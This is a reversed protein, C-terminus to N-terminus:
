RPAPIGALEARRPGEVPPRWGERLLQAVPERLQDIVAPGAFM